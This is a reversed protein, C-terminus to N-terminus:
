WSQLGFPDGVSPFNGRISSFKGDEGIIHELNSVVVQVDAVFGAALHAHRIRGIVDELSPLLGDKYLSHVIWSLDGTYACAGASNLYTTSFKGDRESHYAVANSDTVVIIGFEVKRDDLSNMFELVEGADIAECLKEVDINCVYGSVGVLYGSNTIFVKSRVDIRREVTGVMRDAALCLLGDKNVCLAIVTM